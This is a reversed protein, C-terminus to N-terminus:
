LVLDSLPGTRELYKCLPPVTGLYHHSFMIRCTVYLLLDDYIIQRMQQFRSPCVTNQKGWSILHEKSKERMYEEKKGIQKSNTHM